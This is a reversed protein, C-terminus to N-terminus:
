KRTKALCFNLLLASYVWNKFVMDTLCLNSYSEIYKGTANKLEPFYVMALLHAKNGSEQLTLVQIEEDKTVSMLAHPLRMSELFLEGLEEYKTRLLIEHKHKRDLWTQLMAVGQALAVGGLAFLAPTISSSEAM